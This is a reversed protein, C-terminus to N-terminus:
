IEGDILRDVHEILRPVDLVYSGSKFTGFPQCYTHEHVAAGGIAGISAWIQTGAFYEPVWYLAKTGESAFLLNTWAAGSPGVIVEASAFLEMQSLFDLSAAEAAVFGRSRLADRVDEDNYTRSSGKRDLFVRTPTQGAGPRRKGLLTKRFDRMAPHFRSAQDIIGNPYIAHHKMSFMGDIWILQEVHLWDFHEVTHIPRSELILDLTERMAPPELFGRHVLLPVNDFSQPLSGALWMRPLVEALWHYWNGPAFSGPYIISGIAEGPEHKRALAGFPAVAVLGLHASYNRYDFVNAESQEVILDEGSLWATRRARDGVPILVDSFSRWSIADFETQTNSVATRRDGLTVPHATVAKGAPVLEGASM